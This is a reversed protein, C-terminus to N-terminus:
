RTFGRSHNCKVRLQVRGVDSVSRTYFFGFEYGSVEPSTTTELLYIVNVRYSLCCRGQGKGWGGVDRGDGVKSLTWVVETLFYM